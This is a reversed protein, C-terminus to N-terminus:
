TAPPESDLQALERLTVPRIPPRVRSFGIREMCCGYEAALLHSVAYGCQRGQCAGMGARTHAKVQDPGGPFEKAASRIEGATIEECRCVPTDDRLTTHEPRPPYLADLFRRLALQRRLARRLPAARGLAVGECLKGLRQALGLAAIRGRLIAADAGAIGANDGAAYLGDRSTMGWADLQPVLCLQDPQWRHDCGAALTAHVDSVFGEHVLLLSAPVTVPHGRGTRYRIAEVRDSGLAEIATVRCATALRSLRLRGLWWLGKLVDSVGFLAAPSHPLARWAGGRPTTDLWGAIRGGLDLVQVAYLLPLPGSGVLWAGDAPIQGSTKVLIQAAGVTLVGPLTWGPFPVARERAGTALLVATAEVTLAKGQATVYAKWAPELHWMCTSPMYRVASGRLRDSWVEGVQYKPGLAGALPTGRNRASAQWMQGGPGSADDIILVDVGFEALEVAAAVGAPGAGVILVDCTEPM